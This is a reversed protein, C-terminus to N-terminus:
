SDNHEFASAMRDVEAARLGLGSAVDRWKAVAGEVEAVIGRAESVTLRFYDAVGMALDLSATGDDLDIATTLVRPKIDVPVPNLDYAPALRWGDPGRYLFGHNRLHDDTNSILINFVIRRWLARIDEGPAAGHQRLADVFELYSRTEKDVADLMSMASLFPIRIGGTRDFRKSLLVPKDVIIELRWEPVSLGAYGALRM